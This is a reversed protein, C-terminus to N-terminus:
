LAFRRVAVIRGADDRIAGEPSTDPSIVDTRGLKKAADRVIMSVLFVTGDQPSPLREIDKYTQTVTPVGDIQKVIESKTEVRAVGQSPYVKETGDELRVIVDHPTLNVVKM